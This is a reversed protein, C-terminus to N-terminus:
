SRSRWRARVARRRRGQARRPKSPRPTSARAGAPHGGAVAPLRRGRRAAAARGQEQVGLRLHGARGQHAITGRRLGARSSRPAVARRRRPVEGDRADDVEALQEIMRRARSRRRRALLEGPDRYVDFKAGLEEDNWLIAKMEVLDVVGRFADEVGIPMQIAVPNARSASASRRSAATSTPASATWRTSSPSARCATATPRAGCRRRSRSCAASPASCRWRATSCACRASSRSPSTSTARAHRHHQHPTDRWFCTTAASTITIGREQEQEMWDMTAAGEHVEGIKYNVGTYYCSGSPRRPKVRTSTRWSGSTGPESSIPFERAMSRTGHRRRRVSARPNTPASAPLLSAAQLTRGLSASPRMM